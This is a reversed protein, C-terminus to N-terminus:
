QCAYIFYSKQDELQVTVASNDTQSSRVCVDITCGARCRRWGMIFNATITLPLSIIRCARNLSHYKMKKVVRARGVLQTGTQRERQVNARGLVHGGAGGGCCADQLGNKGADGGVGLGQCLAALEDCIKDPSALRRKGVHVSLRLLM